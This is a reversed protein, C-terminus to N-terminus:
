RSAIISATTGAHYDAPMEHSPELVEIKSFGADRLVLALASVSPIARLGSTVNSRVTTPEGPTRPVLRVIPDAAQSVEGDIVVANKTIRLARRLVSIPDTLHYLVGLMLTIDPNPAPTIATWWADEELNAQLFTCGPVGLVNAAARAEAVFFPSSDIGLVNLAGARVAEMSWYGQCCGLDLVDLRHMSGGLRELLPLFFHRRRKAVREEWGPRTPETDGWPFVFRYHWYKAARLTREAEELLIKRGESTM